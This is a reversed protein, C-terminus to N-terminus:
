FFNNKKKKKNILFFNFLDSNIFHKKFVNWYLKEFENKYKQIIKFRKLKLTPTLM